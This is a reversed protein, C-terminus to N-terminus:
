LLHEFNGGDVEVCKGFRKFVTRTARRLNYQREQKLLAASNKIRAVLEDRTNVKEKYVKSKM